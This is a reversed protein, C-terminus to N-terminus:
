VVTVDAVRGRVVAGVHVEAVPRRPEWADWLVARMRDPSVAVVVGPGGAVERMGRYASAYRVVVPDSVGAAVVAGSVTACLLRTGGSWPLVGASALPEGIRVEGAPRLDLADFLRIVGDECVAAVRGDAEALLLVRSTLVGLPTRTGDPSVRELSAGAVLVGDDRWALVASFSGLLAPAGTAVVETRLITSAPMMGPLPPPRPPSIEAGPSTVTPRIMGSPTEPVAQDWWVLGRQRHTGWLVRGSRTVASFGHETTMATDRYAFATTPTVLWIGDRAGVLLEGVGVGGVGAFASRLPGLDGPLERVVTDWRGSRVSLEVLATGAVCWVRGAVTGRDGLASLLLSQGEEAGVQGLVDSFAINKERLDRMVTGVREASELRRHEELQRAKARREESQRLVYAPVEATVAVDGGVLELGTVYAGTAAAKNFRQVLEPSVATWQEATLATAGLASVLRPLLATAVDAPTVASKGSMLTQRIVRRDAEGAPVRVALSVRVRADDGEVTKVGPLDVTVAVPTPSFTLDGRENTYVLAAASPFLPINPRPPPM